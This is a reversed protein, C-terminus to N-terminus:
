SYPSPTKRFCQSSPASSIVSTIRTGSQVAQVSGFGAGPYTIVSGAINWPNTGQLTAVSGLVATGAPLQGFISAGTLMSSPASSIVSAIRTGLQQSLVSGPIAGIDVTGSISGIAWPNTGQLVTVSGIVASSNLFMVSSNGLATTVVQRNAGGIVSSEITIVSGYADRVDFNPM